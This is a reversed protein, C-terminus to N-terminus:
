VFDLSCLGQQSVLRNEAQNLIEGYQISLSLENGCKCFVPWRDRNQAPDICYMGGNWRKFIWKLLVRRNVGLDELHGSEVLDGWETHM